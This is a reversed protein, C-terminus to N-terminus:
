TLRAASLEDTNTGKGKGGGAIRGGHRWIVVLSGCKPENTLM